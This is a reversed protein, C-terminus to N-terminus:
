RKKGKPGKKKNIQKALKKINDKKNVFLENLLMDMIEYADMVDDLTIEKNSHSGANGIWKIALFLVIIHKHKKPVLEIRRHLSLYRRKSDKTEFRKVKLHTLLNELAIRIHNAASPPNCFFLQFSQEVEDMVDVPTGKPFVFPKLHPQFFRPRFYKSYVQIPEGEEDQDYDIDLFGIGTSVVPEACSVSSCRLLCSYVYEVDLPNQESSHYARKSRATEKELFTDKVLRLVGNGCTPCTWQPLVEKYFPFKYLRRDV